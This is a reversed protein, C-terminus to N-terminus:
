DEQGQRKKNRRVQLRRLLVSVGVTMGDHGSELAEVGAPALGDLSASQQQALQVADAAMLRFAALLGPQLALLRRDEITDALRTRRLKRRLNRRSGLAILGPVVM